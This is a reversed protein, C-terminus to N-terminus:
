VSFGFKNYAYVPGHMIAYLYKIQDLTVVTYKQNAYKINQTHENAQNLIRSVDHPSYKKDQYEMQLRCLQHLHEKNDPNLFVTTSQGLTETFLAQQAHASYHLSHAAWAKEEGECFFNINYAVHTYLDHTVRFLDNYLLEYGNIVIGTKELLPHNWDMDDDLGGFGYSTPFFIIRGRERVDEIMQDAFVYPYPGMEETYPIIDLVGYFLMFQTLTESKFASYSAAGNLYMGEFADAIIKRQRHSFPTCDLRLTISRLM